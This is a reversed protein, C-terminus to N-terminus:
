ITATNTTGQKVCSVHPQHRCIAQADIVRLRLATLLPSTPRQALIPRSKLRDCGLKLVTICNSKLINLTYKMRHPLQYGVSCTQLSFIAKTCRHCGSDSSIKASKFPHMLHPRPFGCGDCVHRSTKSTNETRDSRNGGTPIAISHNAYSVKHVTALYQIAYAKLRCYLDFMAAAPVFGHNRLQIIM